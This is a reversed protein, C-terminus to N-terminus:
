KNRGGKGVGFILGCFTSKKVKNRVPKILPLIHATPDCHFEYVNPTGPVAHNQKEYNSRRERQIGLLRDDALDHVLGHVTRVTLSGEEPLATDSWGDVAVGYDEPTEVTVSPIGEPCGIGVTGPQPNQGVALGGKGVSKVEQVEIQPNSVRCVLQPGRDDAASECYKRGIIGATGRERTTKVRDRQRIARGVDDGVM